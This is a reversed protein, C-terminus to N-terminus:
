GRGGAAPSRTKLTPDRAPTAYFGSVEGDSGVLPIEVYRSASLGSGGDRVGRVRASFARQLGLGVGGRDVLVVVDELPSSEVCGLLSVGITDKIQM